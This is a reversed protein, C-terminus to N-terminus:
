CTFNDILTYGTVCKGCISNQIPCNLCDVDTCAYVQCSVGNYIANGTCLNVSYLVNSDATYAIYSSSVQIFNITM